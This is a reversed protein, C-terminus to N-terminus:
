RTPQRCQRAPAASRCKTSCRRSVRAWGFLEAAKAAQPKTLKMNGLLAGTILIPPLSGNRDCIHKWSSSKESRSISSKETLDARKM